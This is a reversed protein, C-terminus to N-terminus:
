SKMKKDKFSEEGITGIAGVTPHRLPTSPVHDGAGISVSILNIRWGQRYSDLDVQQAMWSVEDFWGFQLHWAIHHQLLTPPLVRHGRWCLPHRFTEHRGLSASILFFSSPESHLYHKAYCSKRYNSIPDTQTTLLQCLRWGSEVLPSTITQLRISPFPVIHGNFSFNSSFSKPFAVFIAKSVRLDTKTMAFYSAVENMSGAHITLSTRITVRTSSLQTSRRQSKNLKADAKQEVRIASFFADFCRRRLIKVLQSM